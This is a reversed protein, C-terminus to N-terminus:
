KNDVIKQEDPLRWLLPLALLCAIVPLWIFGAAIYHRTHQTQLLADPQYDGAALLLALLAGTLAFAVKTMLTNLAWALGAARIGTQAMGEDISDALLAYFVPSNVGQLLSVLAFLPLFIALRDPLMGITVLLLIQLLYASVLLARRGLYRCLLPVSANGALSFVNVLTLIIGGFGLSQQLVSRSYYLAFSSCASLSVFYLAFAATALRWSRNALLAALLSKLRFQQPVPPHRVRCGSLTVWWMLSGLLGIAAMFLPFGRLEATTSDGGGLWHVAPLTFFSVILLGCQAGIMRFANLVVRQQPSRTMLGGLISYPTNIGAYIAGLAAYTFYAWALRGHASLPLPLFALLSIVGFPLALWKILRVVLWADRSRDILWGVLPDVVADVVRVLLLLLAVQSVPLRYVDTYYYLIFSGTIGWLLNSALDGCGYSLKERLTLIREAQM